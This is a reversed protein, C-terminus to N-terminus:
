GFLYTGRVPLPAHLQVTFLLMFVLIALLHEAEVGLEAAMLAAVRAPWNVWTDREERALRFVLATARARDVLEGKLRRLAFLRDGVASFEAELGLISFAVDDVSADALEFVAENRRGEIAPVRLKQPLGELAYHSKRLVELKSPVTMDAGRNNSFLRSIPNAM